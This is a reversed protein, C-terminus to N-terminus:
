GFAEFTGALKTRIHVRVVDRHSRATLMGPPFLQYDKAAAVRPWGLGYIGCTSVRSFPSNRCPLNLIKRPKVVMLAVLTCRQALNGATHLVSPALHRHIGAGLAAKVWSIPFERPARSRHRGSSSPQSYVPHSGPRSPTSASLPAFYGQSPLSRHIRRPESAHVFVFRTDPRAEPL